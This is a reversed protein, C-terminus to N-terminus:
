RRVREFMRMIIWFLALVCLTAPLIIDRTHLDTTPDPLEASVLATPANSSITTTATRYWRGDVLTWTDRRANTHPPVVQGPTCTLTPFEFAQTASTITFCGM